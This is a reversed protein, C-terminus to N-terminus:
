IKKITENCNGLRQKPKEKWKARTNHNYKTKTVLKKWYVKHHPTKNQNTLIVVHKKAKEFYYYYYYPNFINKTGIFIDDKQKLGELFNRWSKTGIFNEM